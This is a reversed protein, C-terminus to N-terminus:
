DPDASQSPLVASYHALQLRLKTVILSAELRACDLIFKLM